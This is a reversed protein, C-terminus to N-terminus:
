ARRLGSRFKKAFKWLHTLAIAQFVILVPEFPLRYKPLSVPGNILLFYAIVLVAFIAGWPSLRVLIGFGFVQLALAIMAFTLGGTFWILYVTGNGRLFNFVHAVLGDARTDYFSATQLARIRPDGLIAPAALNIAGNQMWVKALGHLPIQKLKELAFSSALRSREFSNLAEPDIGDRKLSVNFETDLEKTVEEFPRGELQARSLGVIWNLMHPGRQSTLQLTDFEVFNRAVLPLVPLAALALLLVPYGLRARWDRRHRIAILPAAIAMAIPLFLAIPRTMIALGCLLGTIALDDTRCDRLFRASYLLLLSFLFVFLTDGLIMGSHITLNPWFASLLGSVV